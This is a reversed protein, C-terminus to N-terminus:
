RVSVDGIFIFQGSPVHFIKVTYVGPNVNRSGNERFTVTDGPNILGNTINGSVLKNGAFKHDDSNWELTDIQTGNKTYVMIKLDSCTLVDGGAHTMDFVADDSENGTLEAPNDSLSMMAQPPTTVVKSGMGFVFSAIAAAMVVTIAVMLIVGVVPSVGKEDTRIRRTWRSM